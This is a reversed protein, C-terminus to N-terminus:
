KGAAMALEFATQRALAGDARVLVLDASLPRAVLLMPLRVVVADSKWTVIQAPLILDGVKIAAEGKMAGFDSGIITVEMGPALKVLEEATAAEHVVPATNTPAPVTVVTAVPTPIYVPQQVYVTRPYNGLGLGVLQQWPFRPKHGHDDQPPMPPDQPPTAPPDNQPDAVAPPTDTPVVPTPRPPRVGPPVTGVLPPPLIPRDGRHDRVVVTGGDRHDRVVVTGSGRHDRVIPQGSTRHDRVIPGTTPKPKPPILIGFPGTKVTGGDRHDRVIPQGSTRHDRIVVGQSDGAQSWSGAPKKKGPTTTVTVSTARSSTGALPPATVSNGGSTRHDRVVVNAKKKPDQLPPAAALAQDAFSAFIVLSALYAFCKM